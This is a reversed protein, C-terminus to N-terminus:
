AAGHRCVGQRQAGIGTPRHQRRWAPRLVVILMLESVLALLVFLLLWTRRLATSPVAMPDM